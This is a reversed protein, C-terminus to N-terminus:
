KADVVVCAGTSEAVSVNSEMRPRRVLVCVARLLLGETSRAAEGVPQVILVSFVHFTADDAGERVSRVALNFDPLEKRLELPLVVAMPVALAMPLRLAFRGAKSPLAVFSFALRRMSTSDRPSWRFTERGVVSSPNKLVSPLVRPLAAPPVGRSVMRSAAFARRCASHSENLLDRPMRQFSIFALSYALSHAHASNSCTHYLKVHVLTNSAIQKAKGQRRGSTAAYRASVLLIVWVGVCGIAPSFHRGRVANPRM